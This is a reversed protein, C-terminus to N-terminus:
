GLQGDERPCRRCRALPIEVERQGSHVSLPACLQDPLTYASPWSYKLAGPGFASLEMKSGGSPSKRGIPAIPDQSATNSLARYPIMLDRISCSVLQDCAQVGVMRARPRSLPLGNPRQASVYGTRLSRINTGDGVIAIGLFM